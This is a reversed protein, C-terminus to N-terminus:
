KESKLLLTEVPGVSKFDSFHLGSGMSSERRRERNQSVAIRTATKKRIRRDAM